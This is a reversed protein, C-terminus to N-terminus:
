NRACNLEEPALAALGQRKMQCIHRKKKSIIRYQLEFPAAPAGKEFFKGTLTDSDPRM